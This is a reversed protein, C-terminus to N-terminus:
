IGEDLRNQKFRVNAMASQAIPTAPNVDLVHMWLSEPDHWGETQMWTMTVLTGLVAALGVISILARPRPIALYAAAMIMALAPAAHYTYRDAAIQPGNQVVGLMPLTIVFFAVLAATAAPWRRRSMWAVIALVVCSAYAFLFTPAFPEVHQPM